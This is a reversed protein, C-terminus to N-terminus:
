QQQKLTFFQLLPFIGTSSLQPLTCLFKQCLTQTQQAATPVSGEPVIWLFQVKQNGAPLANHWMDHMEKKIDGHTTIAVTIQVALLGVCNWLLLDFCPYNSNFPIFLTPQKWDVDPPVSNGRFFRFTYKGMNYEMDKKAGKGNGIV